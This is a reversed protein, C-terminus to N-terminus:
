DVYSFYLSLIRLTGVSWLAWGFQGELSLSSRPKLNTLKIPLPAICSDVLLLQLILILEAQSRAKFQAQCYNLCLIIDYSFFIQWVLSMHDKIKYKSGIQVSSLKDWIHILLIITKKLWLNKKAMDVLDINPFDRSM